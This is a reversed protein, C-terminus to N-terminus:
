KRAYKPPMINSIVQLNSSDNQGGLIYLVTLMIVHDCFLHETYILTQMKEIGSESITTVKRWFTGM